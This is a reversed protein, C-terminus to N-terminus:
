SMAQLYVRGDRETARYTGVSATAPLTLAEGTELDFTAGHRPCEISAEEAIVEGEALSAKAHSCCDAVAYIRSGLRVVAIESGDADVRVPSAEPFGESPGADFEAM